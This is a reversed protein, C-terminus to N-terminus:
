KQLSAGGTDGVHEVCLESRNLNPKDLLQQLMALCNSRSLLVDAAQIMSSISLAELLSSTLAPGIVNAPETSDGYLCFLPEM